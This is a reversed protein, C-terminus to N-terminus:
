PMIPAAEFILLIRHQPTYTDLESTAATLRWHADRMKDVVKAVRNAYQVRVVCTGYSHSVVACSDFLKEIDPINPM